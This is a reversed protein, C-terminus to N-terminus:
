EKHADSVMRFLYAGVFPNHTAWPMTPNIYDWTALFAERATFFEKSTPLKHIPLYGHKDPDWDAQSVVLNPLMGEARADEETIDSVREVKVSLIEITCRSYSRPMFMSSVFKWSPDPRGCFSIDSTRPNRWCSERVYPRGGEQYPLTAASPQRKPQPKLLRRTQTKNGAIIQEVLVSKFGIHPRSM